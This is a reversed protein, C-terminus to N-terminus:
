RAHRDRRGRRKGPRCDYGCRPHHEASPRHRHLHPRVMMRSLNDQIARESETDLASTAEDFILIPPDSLARARHRRATETRRLARPRIEGIKSEYGHPLRMIFDHANAVQACWLVRDFDPEPDGFAINRTITDNFMHNEQLVMGIQRRVDRYNLTKLDVRDFLITGATPEILGALLKILTTKGSGSRGVLAVIKGPAFELNIGACFIRRRPDAM